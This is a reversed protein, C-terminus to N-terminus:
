VYSLPLFKCIIEDCARLKERRQSEFGRGKAKSGLSTIWEVVEQRRLSILLITRTYYACGDRVPDERQEAERVLRRTSGDVGESAGKVHRIHCGAGRDVVRHRPVGAVAARLRSGRRDGVATGDAVAERHVKSRQEVTGHEIEDSM